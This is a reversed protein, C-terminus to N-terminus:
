MGILLVYLIFFSSAALKETQIFSMKTIAGLVFIALEKGTEENWVVHKPLHMKRETGAASSRYKM